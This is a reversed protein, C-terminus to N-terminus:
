QDVNPQRAKEIEARLRKAEDNPRIMGLELALNFEKLLEDWRENSGQIIMELMARDAKSKEREIQLQRRNWHVGCFFCAVALTIWLLASLRFQPRKM